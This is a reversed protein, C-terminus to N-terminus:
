RVRGAASPATLAQVVRNMRSGLSGKVLVADGPRLVSAVIPALAASDDAHAGRIRDPLLDHLRRMLPGCTFVMDAVSEVSSALASHERAAETGLELMDGLVVIRRTARQLALVELAARVSASSANYSEDLLLAEGGALAIHQRVGRGRVPAFAALAAAARPADLGLATVCALAAVANMAMHAGPAGLRFRLEKGGILVTLDSGDADAAIDRLRVGADAGTGFLVIRAEGARARLRPLFPSDAPLVAAGGPVLGSLITAKEDAIAEISGLHGVHAREIATIVAVHPRALRALPAIEGAHNMGIEVVAFAADAPLRALTLPVGWHNNYSAVAAHAPAFVGLMTRLMEKTTTKGVSGTVAVVRGAFRRRAFAGLAQLGQLTDRVRLLNAGSVDRHVMAGAAGRALADAVHDHGDGNEGRLAVFLDGPALTRSDIAVGTAAFGPSPAGTAAALDSESWLPTV